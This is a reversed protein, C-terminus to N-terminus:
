NRKKEMARKDAARKGTTSKREERGMGEMIIRVIKM